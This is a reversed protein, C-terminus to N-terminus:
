HLVSRRACRVVDSLGAQGLFDTQKGRSITFCIERPHISALSVANSRNTQTKPSDETLESSCSVSSRVRLVDGHDGFVWVNINVNFLGGVKCLRDEVMDSREDVGSTGADFFRHLPTKRMEIILPHHAAHRREIGCLPVTKPKQFSFSIRPVSGPEFPAM